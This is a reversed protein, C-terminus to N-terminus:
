NCYNSRRNKKIVKEFERLGQRITKGFKQEEANLEQIIMDKNKNLEPYVRSYKDIIVQSIQAIGGEKINLLKSYRIARRILRRM